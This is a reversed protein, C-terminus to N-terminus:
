SAASQVEGLEAQFEKVLYEKLQEVAKRTAYAEWSHSEKFAHCNKKGKLFNYVTHLVTISYWTTESDQVNPHEPVKPEEKVQPRNHSLKRFYRDAANDQKHYAALIKIQNRVFEIAQKHSM